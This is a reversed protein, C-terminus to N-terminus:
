GPTQAQSAAKGLYNGLWAAFQDATLSSIGNLAANMVVKGDGDLVLTRAPWASYLEGVRGDDGDIVAPITLGLARIAELSVAQREARGPKATAACSQYISKLREEPHGAERIDVFLFAARDRYKRYCQEFTATRSTFIPCSFSGFLLVVPKGRLGSLRVEGDHGLAPLTFDPAAKGATLASPLKPAQWFQHVAWGSAIGVPICWALVTWGLGKM